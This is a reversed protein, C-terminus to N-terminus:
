HLPTFHYNIVRAIASHHTFIAKFSFVFFFSLFPLQNKSLKKDPIHLNYDSYLDQARWGHRELKHYLKGLAEDAERLDSMTSHM